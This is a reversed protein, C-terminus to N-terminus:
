VQTEVKSQKMYSYKLMNKTLFNRIKQGYNKQNQIKITYSTIPSHIKNDFSNKKNWHSVEWGKKLLIEMKERVM